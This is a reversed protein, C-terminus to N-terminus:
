LIGLNKKIKLGYMLSYTDSCSLHCIFNPEMVDYQFKYIEFKALELICARVVTSVDWKTKIPALTLAAWDEGFVEYTEIEFKSIIRRTEEANRLIKNMRKRKSECM